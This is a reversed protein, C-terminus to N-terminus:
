DIIFIIEENTKCYTPGKFKLVLDFKHANKKDFSTAYYSKKDELVLTNSNDQNNKTTKSFPVALAKLEFDKADVNKQASNFFYIKLEKKSKVVEVYCNFNKDIAKNENESEISFQKITGGKLPLLTKPADHNHGEHGIVRVYFIMTLFILFLFKM